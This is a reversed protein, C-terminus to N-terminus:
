PAQLPQPTSLFTALRMPLYTSWRRGGNWITARANPFIGWSTFHFLLQLNVYRPVVHTYVTGILVYQIPYQVWVQMHAAIYNRLVNSSLLNVRELSSVYHINHSLILAYTNRIHTYTHTNCISARKDTSLLHYVVLIHSMIRSCSPSNHDDIRRTACAGRQGWSPPGDRAVVVM